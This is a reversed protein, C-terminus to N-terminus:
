SVFVLSKDKINKPQIPKAKLIENSGKDFTVQRILPNDSNCQPTGLLDDLPDRKPCQVGGEVRLYYVKGAEVELDLSGNMLEAKFNYKGSPLKMKFYRKKKLGAIESRVPKDNVRTGFDVSITKTIGFLALFLAGTEVRYVYITALEKGATDSNQNVSQQAFNSKACFLLFLIVLFTRSKKKM